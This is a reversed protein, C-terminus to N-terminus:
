CLIVQFFVDELSGYKDHEDIHIDSSTDAEKRADSEGLDM